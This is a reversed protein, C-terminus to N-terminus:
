ETASACNGDAQMEGTVEDRGREALLRRVPARSLSSCILGTLCVDLWHPQTPRSETSGPPLRYTDRVLLLNANRQVSLPEISVKDDSSKIEASVRDVVYEGDHVDNLEAHISSTLNTYFPEETADNAPLQKTASIKAALSKAAADGFGILDGQASM